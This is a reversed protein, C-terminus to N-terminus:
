SPSLVKTPWLHREISDRFLSLTLSSLSLPSVSLSLSLSLTLHIRDKHPPFFLGKNTLPYSWKSFGHKSPCTFPVDLYLPVFQVSLTKWNKKLCFCPLSSRLVKGSQTAGFNFLSFVRKSCLIFDEKKIDSNLIIPFYPRAM